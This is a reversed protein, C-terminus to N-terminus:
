AIFSYSICDLGMGRVMQCTIAAAAMCLNDKVENYM